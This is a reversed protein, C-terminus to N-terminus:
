HIVGIKRMALFKVAGSNIEVVCIYGGKAVKQGAENTGDWVLRVTGAYEIAAPYERVLNGLLDYIKIKVTSESFLDYAITTSGLRSDFPNPYNTIMRSKDPLSSNIFVCTLSMLAIATIITKIFRKSGM